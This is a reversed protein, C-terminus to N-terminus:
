RKDGEIASDNFRHFHGASAGNDRCIRDRARDLDDAHPIPDIM